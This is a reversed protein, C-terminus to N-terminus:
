FAWHQYVQQAMSQVSEHVTYTFHNNIAYVNSVSQEQPMYTLNPPMFTLLNPPMFTLLNPPMIVGCVRKEGDHDINTLWKQLVGLLRPIYWNPFWNEYKIRDLRWQQINKDAKIASRLMQISKRKGSIKTIM